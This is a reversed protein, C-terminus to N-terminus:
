DAGECANRIEDKEPRQWIWQLYWFRANLLITSYVAFNKSVSVMKTVTANRWGLISSEFLSLVMSVAGSGGQNVTLNGFYLPDMAALGLEAM